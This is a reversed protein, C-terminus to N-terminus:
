IQHGCRTCVLHERHDRGPSKCFGNGSWSGSCGSQQDEATMRRMRGVSLPLPRGESDHIATDRCHEDGVNM